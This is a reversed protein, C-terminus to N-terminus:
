GQGADGDKGYPRRSNREGASESCGEKGVQTFLGNEIVFASNEIPASGDGTILRAGEYVTARGQGFVFASFFVTLYAVTLKRM